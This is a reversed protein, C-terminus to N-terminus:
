DALRYWVEGWPAVRESVRIATGTKMDDASNLQLRVTRGDALLAAIDGPLLINRVENGPAPTFTLVKGNHVARERSPRPL